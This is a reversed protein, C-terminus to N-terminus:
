AAEALIQDKKDAFARKLLPNRCGEFFKKAWAEASTKSEFSKLRFADEFAAVPLSLESAEATSEAENLSSKQFEKELYNLSLLAIEKKEKEPLARALMLVTSREYASAALEPLSFAKKLSLFAAAPNKELDTTLARTIKFYEDNGLSESRSHLVFLSALNKEFDNVSLADVIKVESPSLESKLDIASKSPLSSISRGFARHSDAHIFTPAEVQSSHLYGYSLGILAILFSKKM